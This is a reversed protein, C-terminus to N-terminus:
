IKIATVQTKEQQRKAMRDQYFERNLKEIEKPAVLMENWDKTPIIAEHGGLELKGVMGKHSITPIHYRVVKNVEPFREHFAQVSIESAMFSECKNYPTGNLEGKVKIDYQDNVRQKYVPKGTVPDVSRGKKPYKDQDWKENEPIPTMEDHFQTVTFSAELGQLKCCATISAQKGAFDRDLCLHVVAEPYTDQIITMHKSKPVGCCSILLTNNLDIPQGKQKQLELYSMADISSEFVYCQKVKQPDTQGFPVFYNFIDSGSVNVKIARNVCKVEFGKIQKTKLDQIGFGINIKKYMNNKLLNRIDAAAKLIPQQRLAALSDIINKRIASIPKYEPNFHYIGEPSLCKFSNTFSKQYSLADKLNNAHINSIFNIAMSKDEDTVPTHNSLENLQALIHETTDEIYSEPLCNEMHNLYTQLEKEFFCEHFANAYAAALGSAEPIGNNQLINELLKEFEAVKTAKKHTSDESRNIEFISCTSLFDNLPQLASSPLEKKQLQDLINYEFKFKNFHTYNDDISRIFSMTLEKTDAPIHLRDIITTIEKLKTDNPAKFKLLDSIAYVNNGVSKITDKELGRERTLYLQQPAAKEAEMLPKIYWRTADFPHTHPTDINQSKKRVQKMVESDAMTGTMNRVVDKMRTIDNGWAHPHFHAFFDDKFQLMFSFKDYAKKDRVDFIFESMQGKNMLLVKQESRNDRGGRRFCPSRHNEASDKSLEFRAISLLDRNSIKNLASQLEERVSKHQGQSAM